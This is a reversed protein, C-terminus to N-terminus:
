ILEDEVMKGGITVLHYRLKTINRTIKDINRMNSSTLKNKLLMIKSMNKSQYLSLMANYMDKTMKRKIIHTTLDDKM